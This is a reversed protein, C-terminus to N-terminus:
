KVATVLLLLARSGDLRSTGVVVTEGAEIKFSANILVQRSKGPAPDVPAWLQMYAISTVTAGAPVGRMHFEHLQGDIGKMQQPIPNAGILYITDLPLYTKYPLFDKLDALAKAADPSFTGSRGPQVEGLALTVIFRRLDSKSASAAQVANDNPRAALISSSLLLFVAVAGTVSARM